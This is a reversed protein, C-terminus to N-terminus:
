EKIYTEPIYLKRSARAEILLYGPIRSLVKVRGGPIDVCRQSLRIDRITKANSTDIAKAYQVWLDPTKCAFGQHPAFTPTPAQYVLLSLFVVWILKM